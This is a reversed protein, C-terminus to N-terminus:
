QANGPTKERREKFADALASHGAQRAFDEASLGAENKLSDNAGRQLLLKVLEINGSRAALMLPTTQNPSLANVQAQKDLLLETIATQGSTAAYHLATWGEQNVAAGRELMARVALVNGKLSALMLASEGTRNKRSLQTDLRALLLASTKHSDERLAKMLCTDGDTLSAYNPNGGRKLFASVTNVNDNSCDLLFGEYDFSQAYLNFHFILILAAFFAKFFPLFKLSQM